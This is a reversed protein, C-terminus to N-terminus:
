RASTKLLAVGYPGLRLVENRPADGILATADDPLRAVTTEEASHNLLTLYRTGGADRVVCEVSDSADVASEVEELECFWEVIADTADQDFYGGLYIVKGDVMSNMTAAAGGALLGNGDWRALVCAGMPKLREAFAMADVSPGDVFVARRTQEKELSTWDEVEVGALSALLGPPTRQTIHLRRDHLGSQAGLVLTGGNEVFRTLKAVLADDVIKLHGAILLQYGDFDQDSWVFDTPVHRKVLSAAWRGYSWRGDHTYTNIRKENVDVDFDRLVAAVKVPKADFFEDPLTAIEKATLKAEALRRNDKNDQDILGHWHQETGFAATRWTFYLIKDAGHALSEYTWLRMEGPEPTRLLYAMQGGPGAQQEMISFPFSYSRAEIPKQSFESWHKWFLPYHDLSYFDLEASLHRPNVNAFISNHTVQWRPNARKLIEAQARVFKIVSDSIFRSQDLLRHPNQGQGTPAPLDIEDWGGYVQSWFRTGWAENIADLTHYRERLWARFAITDSEAYSADSSNNIENDLQWAIIQDEKAYHEALATTIRKSLDLFKPSTHNFNQRSGHALPQREFNWRLVEPYKKAIWAPGTYTPTGMVVKIDRERCLDIVRDFLEFQYKGESPEWYWWAGEGLRVVNFGAAQMRDFDRAHNESPWLEPYYTAGILFRNM